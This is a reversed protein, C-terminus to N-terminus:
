TMVVGSAINEKWRYIASGATKGGAAMSFDIEVHLSESASLHLVNVPDRSRNRRGGGSRRKVTETEGGTELRSSSTHTLTSTTFSYTVVKRQM